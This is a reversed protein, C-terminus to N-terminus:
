DFIVRFGAPVRRVASGVAEQWRSHCSALVTRRERESEARQVEVSAFFRWIKINKTRKFLQDSAKVGKLRGYVQRIGVGLRQPLSKLM